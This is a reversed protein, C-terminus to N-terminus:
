FHSLIVGLDVMKVVQRAQGLFQEFHCGFREGTESIAGIADVDQGKPRGGVMRLQMMGIALQLTDDM